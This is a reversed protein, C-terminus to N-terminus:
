KGRSASETFVVELMSESSGYGWDRPSNLLSVGLAMGVRKLGREMSGRCTIQGVLYLPAVSFMKRFPHTAVCRWKGSAQFKGHAERWDTPRCYQRNTPETERLNYQAPERLETQGEFVDM